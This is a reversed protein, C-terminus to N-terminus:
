KEPEANEGWTHGCARCKWGPHKAPMPVELIANGYSVGREAEGLSVDKSQCRPCQPEEFDRDEEEYSEQTRSEELLNIAAEADDIRVCLKIGGLANSLFWDMRVTAADALFCELGASTLVDKAILAEPLDRFKQVIVLDPSHSTEAEEPEALRVNSGRKSLEDRLIERAADTLSVAEEALKALEDESMRSYAESLERKKDEESKAM